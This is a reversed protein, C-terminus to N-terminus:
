IKLFPPPIEDPVTEGLVKVIEGGNMRIVRHAFPHLRVDNCVCVITVQTDLVWQRLTTMVKVASKHDLFATPEDLLFIKPDIVCARAIAALQKDAHSVQHLYQDKKEELGLLALIKMIQFEKVSEKIPVFELAMLLNDFITLGELLCLDQFVFGIEVSQIQRIEKKSRAKWDKGLVICKGQPPIERGGMISLLSTKGSGSFGTIIVFEGRQIELDISQLYGTKQVNQCSIISM